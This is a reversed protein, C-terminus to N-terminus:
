RVSSHLLLREAFCESLILVLSYMQRRKSIQQSSILCFYTIATSYFPCKNLKGATFGNRNMMKEEIEIGAAACRCPINAGGCAQTGPSNFGPLNDTWASDCNTEDPRGWDFNAKLTDRKQIATSSTASSSISEPGLSQRTTAFFASFQVIDASSVKICTQPHAHWDNKISLLSLIGDEM